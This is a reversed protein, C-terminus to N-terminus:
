LNQCNNDWEFQPRISGPERGMFVGIERAGDVVSFGLIDRELLLARKRDEVIILTLFYQGSQFFSAPFNCSVSNLGLHLKVSKRSSFAFLAEGMDNYLHYTIHYREPNKHFTLDTKLVIEKSDVLDQDSADGKNSIAIGHLQFIDSSYQDEFHRKSVTKGGDNMYHSVAGEVAGDYVLNGSNIVIGRTCLSKVAAM